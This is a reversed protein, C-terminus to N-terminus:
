AIASAASLSRAIGDWGDLPAKMKNRTGTGGTTTSGTSVVQAQWGYSSSAAADKSQMHIHHDAPPMTTQAGLAV